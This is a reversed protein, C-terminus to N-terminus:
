VRGAGALLLGAPLLLVEPRARQRLAALSVPLAAAGAVLLGAPVGEVPEAGTRWCRWRRSTGM